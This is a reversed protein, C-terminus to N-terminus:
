KASYSLRYNICQSYLGDVGKLCVTYFRLRNGQTNLDLFVDKLTKGKCIENALISEYASHYVNERSTTNYGYVNCNEMIDLKSYKKQVFDTHHGYIFFLSVFVAPCLLLFIIVLKIGSFWRAHNAASVPLAGPVSPGPASEDGASPTELITLSCSFEYGQRPLTKLHLEEGTLTFYSKRILAISNNLSANSPTYGRGVWVVELLEDRSIITNNRELLECLVLSTIPQLKIFNEAHETSTLTFDESNFLVRDNVLVKM